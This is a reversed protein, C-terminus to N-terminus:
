GPLFPRRVRICPRTRHNEVRIGGGLISFLRTYVQSSGCRIGATWWTGERIGRKIRRKNEAEGTNGSEWSSKGTRRASLFSVAFLVAVSLKEVKRDRTNSADVRGGEISRTFTSWRIWTCGFPFKESIKKQSLNEKKKISFCYDRFESFDLDVWLILGFDIM